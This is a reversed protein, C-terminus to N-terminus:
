VASTYQWVRGASAALSIVGSRQSSGPLSASSSSDLPGVSAKLSLRL